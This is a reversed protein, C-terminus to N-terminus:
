KKKFSITESMADIVYNNFEIIDAVYKKELVTNKFDFNYKLIVKNNSVTFTADYEMYHNSFHQDKPIYKVEYGEPIAIEFTHFYQLKYDFEFDSNRITDKIDFKGFKNFYPNLFITNGMDTVYKEIAFDYNIVINSDRSSLNAITYNKLFFRNNGLELYNKLSKKKEVDTEDEVIRYFNDKAYGSLTTVGNGILAEKEINFTAFVNVSNDAMSKAPITHMEYKDNSIHIMAEKEQIFESPFEISIRPNTADLYYYKGNTKYIAIMHNYLQPTHIDKSSYPLDRSGIWALYVNNIGALKAMTHVINAMDKCDGYRKEYVDAAARPVYGEYGSEFAIYKINDKVWYYIAKVKEYETTKDKILSDVKLKLQKEDKVEKKALLTNFFEHLSNLDPLVKQTTNGAQYSKLNFIIQPTYYLINQSGAESKYKPIDRIIWKYFTKDGKETKEFSKNKLRDFHLETFDIEIGKAVEATVEYYDIPSGDIIVDMDILQPLVMEHEYDIIKYTGKVVNDYNLIKQEVDHHFSTADFSHKTTFNTVPKKILKNGQPYLSYAQIDNLKRFTSYSVVDSADYSLLDKLVLEQENTHKTVHINGKKVEFIYNVKYSLVVQNDDPYKKVWDAFDEVKQASLSTTLFVFLLNIYKRWKM